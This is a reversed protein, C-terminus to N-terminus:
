RYYFEFDRLAMIRTKNLRYHYGVRKQLNDWYTAKPRSHSADWHQTVKSIKLWAESNIVWGVKAAALGMLNGVGAYMGRLEAYKSIKEWAELFEIEKGNDRVIMFLSEGIWSSNNFSDDSINLKDALKKLIPLSFPRYKSVHEVLNEHRGTIGPKLEIDEPLSELIKTDADIFIAAPFLSIAKQFVFIKDNYCHLIGQQHHEFAMVNKYSSFDDPKETYIVLSIGPANTELDKVLEKTIDRYRQGLALTCFCFKKPEQTM